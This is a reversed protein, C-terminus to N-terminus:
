IACRSFMETSKKKVQGAENNNTESFNGVSHLCVALRFDTVIVVTVNPVVVIALTVGHLGVTHPHGMVQEEVISEVSLHLDVPLAQRM